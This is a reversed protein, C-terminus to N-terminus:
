GCADEDDARHVHGARAARRAPVGRVGHLVDEGPHDPRKGHGDAPQLHPDAQHRERAGDAASNGHPQRRPQLLRGARPLPQHREEAGPERGRGGHPGVQADFANTQVKFSSIADSPPSFGTGRANSMNFMGDITFENGGQVGNSVIGALNGNDMPRAFHLDSTDMIGPALRTLMYATGDGLPLQAIQKADITIGSVGTTTNLLPSDAVVSVVENVPGPELVIDVKVADGVAVQLGTKVVKKFGSLTAAVSYPGVNLYPVRYGGESDTVVNQQVKTDDNTVTVTVGPLIAGTTDTVKGVISGRFDQANAPTSATVTVLIALVIAWYTGRVM